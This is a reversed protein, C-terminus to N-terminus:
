LGLLDPRYKLTRSFASQLRWKTIEAHNGSLLVDPVKVGMFEYPRTFSPYDLLRVKKIGKQRLSLLVKNDQGVVKILEDLNVEFFSDFEASDRNGLVGPVLRAVADIVVSAAIEGNSLVYDGISIIEDVYDEVRADVGEYNSSVLILHDLSSWEKAKNQDFKYGAPSLMVKKEQKEQGVVSQLASYVVDPKIVMGAGGGYATDDVTKHKDKAYDRLQIYDIKIVGTEVARGLVSFTTFNSIIEPFLSIVTFRM